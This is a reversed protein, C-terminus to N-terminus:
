FHAKIRFWFDYMKEREEDQFGFQRHDDAGDPLHLVIQAIERNSPNTYKVQVVRNMETPLCM